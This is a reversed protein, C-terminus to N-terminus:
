WRLWRQRFTNSITKRENGRDRSIKHTTTLSLFESPLMRLMLWLSIVPAFKMMMPYREVRYQQPEWFIKSSLRRRGLVIKCLPVYIDYIVTGPASVALEAAAYSHLSMMGIWGIEQISVLWKMIRLCFLTNYAYPNRWVVTSTVTYDLLRSIMVHILKHTDHVSLLKPRWDRRVRTSRINVIACDVHEFRCITIAILDLALFYPTYKVHAIYASIFHSLMVQGVPVFFVGWKYIRFLLSICRPIQCM